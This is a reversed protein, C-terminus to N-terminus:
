KILQIDFLLLGCTLLNVQPRNRVFVIINEGFVVVSGVIILFFVIYIINQLVLQIFNDWGDFFAKKIYFGFM